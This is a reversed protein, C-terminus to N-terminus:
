GIGEIKQSLTYKMVVPRSGTKNKITPDPEKLFTGNSVYPFIPSPLIDFSPRSSFFSSSLL